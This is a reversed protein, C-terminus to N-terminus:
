RAASSSSSSPLLRGLELFELYALEATWLHSQITDRATDVLSGLSRTPGPKQSQRVLPELFFRVLSVAFNFNALYSVYQCYAAGGVTPEGLALLRLRGMEEVAMPLTHSFNLDKGMSAAYADRSPPCYLHHQLNYLSSCEQHGTTLRYCSELTVPSNKLRFALQDLDFSKARHRTLPGAACSIEDVLDYTLEQLEAFDRMSSPVFSWTWSAAAVEVVLALVRQKRKSSSGNTHITM